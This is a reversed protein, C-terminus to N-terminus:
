CQSNAMSLWLWNTLLRANWIGTLIGRFLYIVRKIHYIVHPMVFWTFMIKCFYFIHYLYEGDFLHCINFWKSLHHIHRKKNSSILTHHNGRWRNGIIIAYVSFERQGKWGPMPQKHVSSHWCILEHGLEYLSQRMRTTYDYKMIM